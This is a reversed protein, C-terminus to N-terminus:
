AAPEDYGDPNQSQWRWACRCMEVVDRTARWGLTRAAKGPDAFCSAVDGARRPAMEVPIERGSVVAFARVMELVSVGQGVGLNFAECGSRGVTWDVAAVHARALDGVDIYDRVGTGDPTGYDSGFVRLAPRRGVAVQAVYPLLNNPVGAPDEGIRGSPHAGIPNFYRLLAISWDPDSAALDELMGEVHLKSRGYPNTSHLPHAEDIPLYLPEGYVTASSSFVFRRCASGALARLLTLSGGVNNDFYDLPRTVSDGVAKLGAFHIAVEPAFENVIRTMADFDRVDAECFDFDRNTLQRVRALSEKSSQSLNDVVFAQHGAALLDVLTHSGVYGAGGTVLARM